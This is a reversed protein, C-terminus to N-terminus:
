VTIIPKNIEQQVVGHKEVNKIKNYLLCWYCCISFIINVLRIAYWLSRYSRCWGRTWYHVVVMALGIAFVALVITWIWLGTVGFGMSIYLLGVIGNENDGVVGGFYNLSNPTWKWGVLALYVPTFFFVPMIPFLVALSLWAKSNNYLCLDIGVFLTTNIIFQLQMGFDWNLDSWVLNDMNRMAYAQSTLMPMELVFAIVLKIISTYKYGNFFFILYILNALSQLTFFVAFSILASEINNNSKSYLHVLSWIGNWINFQILFAKLLLLPKFSFDDSIIEFVFWCCIPFSVPWTWLGFAGFFMSFSLLNQTNGSAITGRFDDLEPQWRWGLQALHVPTFVLGSILTSLFIAGPIWMKCENDILLYILDIATFVVLNFIFQFQIAIDWSFDNWIFDQQKISKIVFAQSVVMPMELCLAILFKSFIFKPLEDLSNKGHVILLVINAISQLCIFIIFFVIALVNGQDQKYLHIASWICNIIFFLTLLTKVVLYWRRLFWKMKLKKLNRSFWKMKRKRVNRVPPPPTSPFTTTPRQARITPSPKPSSKLTNLFPPLTIPTVPTRPVYQRTKRITYPVFSPLDDLDITYPVYSPLNDLDIRLEGVSVDDDTSQEEHHKIEEYKKLAQKFDRSTPDPGLMDIVLQAKGWEGREMSADKRIAVDDLFISTVLCGSKKSCYEPFDYEINGWDKLHINSASNYIRQWNPINKKVLDVHNGLYVQCEVVVTSGFVNKESNRYTSINKAEEYKEVFYVGFGLQGKESERLGEISISQVASNTTGHYLTRGEPCELSFHDTDKEKCLQCFHETHYRKCSTVRCGQKFTAM